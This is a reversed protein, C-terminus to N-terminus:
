GGFPNTTPQAPRTIRAAQRRRKVVRQARVRKRVVQKPPATEATTATEELSATRPSAKAPRPLPLPANVVPVTVVSTETPAPEAIVALRTLEVNVPEAAATEVKDPAASTTPEAIAAPQAAPESNAPESTTPGAKIPESPQSETPPQPEASSAQTAPVATQDPEAPTLAPAATEVPAIEPLAAPERSPTTLSAQLNPATPLDQATPEPAAAEVRLMSLTPAPTESQRAFMPGPPARMSPVSVFREHAARLLAAAGLGFVLMSVSLAIAACLFRIGPLM